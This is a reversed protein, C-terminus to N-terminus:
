QFSLFSLSSMLKKNMVLAQLASLACFIATKFIRWGSPFGEL